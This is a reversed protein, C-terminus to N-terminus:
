LGEIFAVAESLEHNRLADDSANAYADNLYHIATGVFVKEINNRLITVQAKRTEEDGNNIAARGLLFANMITTNLGLVANRDNCYKGIFRIGATNGPFDIPVGFYGFAEDWHHLRDSKLSVYEPSIKEESLYYSTIQYYVFAGMLGKEVLQTYEVGKGNMLYKATSVSSSSVVGAVGSSGATTSQSAVAIDDLYTQFKTVDAAYIKNQIQKGSSNLAANTFPNNTNSLMNKLQTASLVTNMVNGKKMTDTIEKLMDLRTTQGSYDVGSFNYTTPVEYTPGTPTPDIVEEKSAKKCSLLLFTTIFILAKKM